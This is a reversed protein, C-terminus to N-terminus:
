KFLYFLYPRLFVPSHNMAWRIMKKKKGLVERYFKKEFPSQTIYRKYLHAMPHRSGIYWPKAYLFYQGAFHIIVANRKADYYETEGYFIKYKNTKLLSERDFFYIASMVNYKMEMLMIKNKFVYNMVDQDHFLINKGYKEIYSICAKLSHNDRWFKLNILCVGSNFYYSDDKIGFERIYEIDMGCDQVAAFAFGELNKNYLSSLEGNIITDCDIYLIKDDDVYDVLFLRGYTLLSDNLKRAMSILNEMTHFDIFRLERDLKETKYKNVLNIFHSKDQESVNCIIIYFCIYKVNRNHDLLSDMSVYTHRMYNRDTAYAINM